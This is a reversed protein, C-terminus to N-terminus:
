ASSTAERLRECDKVYPCDKCLWNMGSDSYVGRVLGPDKMNVASQLAKIEESLKSLQNKRDDPTMTIEFSKFPNTDFQLLCQYIIQGVPADLIAMYNMLQELHFIKPEKITAARLTKFELPENKKKDFIDVSGQIGEYEVYKEVEFRMRNSMFLRQIAEHMSKGSSYMNVERDTPPRPAPDLLKFVRQRPCMVVDTVHWGERPRSYWERLVGRLIALYDREKEDDIFRWNM